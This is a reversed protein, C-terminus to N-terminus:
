LTSKADVYTKTITQNLTGNKVSATSTVLITLVQGGNAPDRVTFAITTMCGVVVHGVAANWIRAASVARRPCLQKFNMEKKIETLFNRMKTM